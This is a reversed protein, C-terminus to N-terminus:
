VLEKAFLLFLKEVAEFKEATSTPCKKYWDLVLDFDSRTIFGSKDADRMSVGKRFRKRWFESKQLDVM